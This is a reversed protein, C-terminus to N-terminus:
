RESLTPLVDEMDAVGDEDVARVLYSGRGLRQVHMEQEGRISGDADVIGDLRLDGKDLSITLTGDRDCLKRLM